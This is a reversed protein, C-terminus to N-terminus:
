LASLAQDLDAILDGANELGVSLRILPGGFHPKGATRKLQPDCHIALSEFGGYSFGLSFLELADLFAHVRETPAKKLVISFLGSAGTFDRKWLAHFPDSELAPHLVRQVATHADLWRAIELGAKEHQEMRLALSRAGRLVAYADDPGVNSGLDAITDKLQAYVKDDDSHMAGSLADAGGSVYKTNAQVSIDFGLQLPKHYVGGSWTNDMVSIAGVARATAAIAPADAIEFTMSGPSEVFVLKTQQRMLGAIGAGITHDFYTAEVGWRSLMRDVFRRTPGYVNDGVLVHSGPTAFALFPVICAMLGSPALVCHTSGEIECLAQKLAEHTATGHRGYTWGGPEFLKSASEVVVTSARQVVPNVGGLTLKRDRGAHSVRTAIDRKATTRKGGKGGKDSGAAM